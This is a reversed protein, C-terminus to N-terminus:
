IQKLKLERELHGEVIDGEVRRMNRAMTKQRSQCFQVVLM